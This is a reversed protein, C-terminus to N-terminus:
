VRLAIKGTIGKIRVSNLYNYLTAGEAWPREDACSVNCCAQNFNDAHHAYERM